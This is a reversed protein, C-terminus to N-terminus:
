NGFHKLVSIGVGGGMAKVDFDYTAGVWAEAQVKGIIPIRLDIKFKDLFETNVGLGAFGKDPYIYGADVSGVKLVKGESGTSFTYLSVVSLTGFESDAFDVFTGSRPELKDITNKWDTFDNFVGAEGRNYITTALFIVALSAVVLMLNRIM